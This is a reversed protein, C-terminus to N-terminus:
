IIGCEERSTSMNVGKEKEEKEEVVKTQATVERTLEDSRDANKSATDSRLAM